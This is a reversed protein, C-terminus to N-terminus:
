HQLVKVPHTGADLLNGDCRMFAVFGEQDYDAYREVLRRLRITSVDRIKYKSLAGFVVTKNTSAITSAMQQNNTIPYNWLRDPDGANVGASWLYRGQADKLLRLALCIQDHFMMGVGPLDRYAPDVSHILKLVDDTAIATSSAATVGVPAVTLLGTADNIGSGTTFSINQRRGLREGLLSGLTVALDFASDQLLEAAVRVLKSGFKYARFTVASFVVDVETVQANEGLLEGTNTTDNVCPWDMEAGTDTRMVDAVQRMGGYRLLARELQPVFGPAVTYGGSADVGAAMARVERRYDQRVESYNRGLRISLTKQAPRIGARQCAALHREELEEGSQARCWAQLALCRDAETVAPHNPDVGGRDAAQEAAPKGGVDSRGVDSVGAPQALDSEILALRQGIQEAQHIQELDAKHRDYDANLQEWNAQDEPKWADHRGAMEKIKAALSARTELLEKANPM